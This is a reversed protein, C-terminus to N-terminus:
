RHRDPETRGADDVDRGTSAHNPSGVEASYECLVREGAHVIAREARAEHVAPRDFLSPEVCHWPGRVAQFV